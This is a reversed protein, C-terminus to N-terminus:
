CNWLVEVIRGDEAWLVQYLYPLEYVLVDRDVCPSRDLGEASDDDGKEIDFACHEDPLFQVVLDDEVTAHADVKAFLGLDNCLFIHM